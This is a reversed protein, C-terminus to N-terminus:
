YLVPTTEKPLPGKEKLQFLRIDNDLVVITDENQSPDVQYRAGVDDLLEFTIYNSSEFIENDPVDISVVAVTNSSGASLVVSDNTSEFLGSSVSYFVTINQERAIDAGITFKASESETVTGGGIISIIPVDDDEVIVTQSGARDSRSYAEDPQITLTIQDFLEDTNDQEAPVFVTTTVDSGGAGLLVSSSTSTTQSTITQRFNTAFSTSFSNVALRNLVEGGGDELNFRIRIPHDREINSSFTFFIGSQETASGQSTVSIVPMDDDILAVRGTKESENVLYQVPNRNDPQLTVIVEGDVEDVEDAETAVTITATATNDGSELTISDIVTQPDLLYQGSRDVITYTIDISQNRAINSKM